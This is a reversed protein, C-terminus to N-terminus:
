PCKVWADKENDLDEIMRKVKERTKAGSYHADTFDRLPIRGKYTHDCIIDRVIPCFWAKGAMSHFLMKNQSKVEIYVRFIGHGAWPKANIGMAFCFDMFKSVVRGVEAPCGLQESYFKESM